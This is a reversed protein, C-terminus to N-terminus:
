VLVKYKYFVICYKRNLAKTLLKKFTTIDVCVQFKFYILIIKIDYGIM